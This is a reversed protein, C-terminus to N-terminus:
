TCKDILIGGFDKYIKTILNYNSIETTEAFGSAMELKSIIGTLLSRKCCKEANRRSDSNPFEWIELLKVEYVSKNAIQCRRIEPQNSVGFKLAIPIENDFVGMIYAKKYFRGCKCDIINKNLNAYTTMFTENCVSCYVSWKTIDKEDRSVKSGKPYLGSKEFREILKDDQRKLSSALEYKCGPCFARGEAFVDGLRTVEWEGHDQCEFLCKTLTGKYNELFSIFRHKSGELTHELRLVLTEEEIRFRDGTMESSCGRCGAKKANFTAFTNRIENGHRTCVLVIESESVPYKETVSVVKFGREEALRTAFVISEKFTKRYRPSCGCPINKVYYLNTYTSTFYGEGFMESDKACIDCKFVYIKNSYAYGIYGLIVKSTDGRIFEGTKEDETLTIDGKLIKGLNM